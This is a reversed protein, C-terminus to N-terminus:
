QVRVQGEIGKFLGKVLATRATFPEDMMADPAHLGERHRIGFAEHLHADRGRHSAYAVGVVVRQGLGDDPQILISSM